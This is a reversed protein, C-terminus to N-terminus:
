NSVPVEAEFKWQEHVVSNVSVRPGEWTYLCYGNGFAVVYSQARLSYNMIELM